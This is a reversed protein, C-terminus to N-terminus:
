IGFAPNSPNNSEDDSGFDIKVPEYPCEIHFAYVDDDGRFYSTQVEMIKFPEKLPKHCHDCVRGRFHPRNSFMVKKEYSKKEM